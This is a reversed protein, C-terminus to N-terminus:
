HPAEEWGVRRVRRRQSEANFIEDYFFKWEEDEGLRRGTRRRALAVEAAMGEAVMDVAARRATAAMDVEARRAMDGAMTM